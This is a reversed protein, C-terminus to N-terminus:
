DRERYGALAIEAYVRADRSRKPQDCQCYVYSCELSDRVAHFTFRINAKVARARLPEDGAVLDGLLRRALIRGDVKAIGFVTRYRQRHDM